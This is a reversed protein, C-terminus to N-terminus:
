FSIEVATAIKTGSIAVMSSVPMSALRLKHVLGTKSGLVLGADLDPQKKAVCDQGQQAFNGTGNRGISVFLAM